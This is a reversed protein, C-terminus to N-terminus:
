GYVGMTRGAVKWRLGIRVGGHDIGGGEVETRDKCWGWPGERWRM